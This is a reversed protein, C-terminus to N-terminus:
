RVTQKFLGHHNCYYYICGINRKPFRCEANGEPYFKQIEVRDDLVSAVFSIYHNKRMDHNFEVFYDDEVETLTAIHFKDPMEAELPPLTIGCCSVVAEGTATIINGCIPCVYFEIRKMNFSRNTNSIRDGAMLEILSVGLTKALEELISIDPYGRCTEWKSVTKESVFLKEALEAQTLKKDERLKKIMSGTVYRNM